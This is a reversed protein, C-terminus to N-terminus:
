AQRLQDVAVVDDATAPTPEKGIRNNPLYLKDQWAAVTTPIDFRSDTIRGIAKGKTGARNLRFVDIRNQQPQVVYVTRGLLLMGDGGPLESAGLDVVTAAGTRPDVRMLVGGNVFTNVMLLASGDPTRCIGNATRSPGQEWDGTLPVTTMEGPRGHRGLALRFLRADLSDTFWAAGPTLIVDNVFGGPTYVKEIGGTRIDVTRVEGSAVGAVFLRGYRDLQLGAAGHGAGLGKSIVSGRGTGLSARYIDGNTLSGFYAYPRSGIVIGEPVFGDPLQFGTLPRPGDAHATATQATGGLLAAGGLAAASALLRRRDLSPSM